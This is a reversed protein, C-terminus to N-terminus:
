GVLGGICGAMPPPTEVSISDEFLISIDRNLDLNIQSQTIQGSGM